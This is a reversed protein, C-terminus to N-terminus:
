GAWRFQAPLDTLAQLNLPMTRDHFDKSKQFGQLFDNLIDIVKGFGVIKTLLPPVGVSCNKAQWKM